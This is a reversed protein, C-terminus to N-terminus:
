AAPGRDRVDVQAVLPLPGGSVQPDGPPDISQDRRAARDEHLQRGTDAEVHGISSRARSTSSRGRIAVSLGHLM